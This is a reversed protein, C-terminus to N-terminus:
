ADEITLDIVKSNTGPRAVYTANSARSTVAMSRTDQALTNSNQYVPNAHTNRIATTEVVNEAGGRCCCNENKGCCICVCTSFFAALLFVVGIVLAIIQVLSIIRDYTAMLDDRCGKSYLATWSKPFAQECGFTNRNDNQNNSITTCVGVQDNNNNNNNNNNNSNTVCDCGAPYSGKWDYCNNNQKENDIKDSKADIGCCQYKAQFNVFDTTYTANLEIKFDNLTDEIVWRLDDSKIFLLVASIVLPAAAAVLLIWYCTITCRNDHCLSYCGLLSVFLIILGIAACGWISYQLYNPALMKYVTAFDPMFYASLAIATLAIGGAFVFLAFLWSLVQCVKRSVITRFIPEAPYKFIELESTKTHIKNEWDRLFIVQFFVGM